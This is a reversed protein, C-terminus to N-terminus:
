IPFSAVLYGVGVPAGYAKIEGPGTVLDGVASLVGSGCSGGEVSLDLALSGLRSPDNEIAHRLHEELELAGRRTGLPGREALAAGSHASAAFNVPPGDWERLAAAFAHGEEIARRAEAPHRGTIESLCAVVVPGRLGILAMPVVAGHDLRADIAPVGWADALRRAMEPAAEGAVDHGRLGHADLSGDAGLYVSARTGHASLVVTVPGEMPLAAAAERLGAREPDPPGVGELLLPAHPVLAASTLQLQRM